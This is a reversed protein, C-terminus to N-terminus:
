NSLESAPPTGNTTSPQPPLTEYTLRVALGHDVRKDTPRHLAVALMWLEDAGGLKRCRKEAELFGTAAWRMA